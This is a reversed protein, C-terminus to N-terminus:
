CTWLWARLERGGGGCQGSVAAGTALPVLGPTLCSGEREEWGKWVRVEVARALTGTVMTDLRSAM